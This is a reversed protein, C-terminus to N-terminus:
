IYISKYKIYIAQLLEMTSSSVLAQDYQMLQAYLTEATARVRLGEENAESHVFSEADGCWEAMRCLCVCVCM